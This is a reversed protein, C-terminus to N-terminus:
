ASITQPTTPNLIQIGKWSLNGGLSVPTASSSATSDWITRDNSGPVTNTASGASAGSWSAANNLATTNNLKYYDNAHAAPSLVLVAFVVGAVLVFRVLSFSPTTKM